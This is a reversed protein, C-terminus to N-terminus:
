NLRLMMITTYEQATSGEWMMVRAVYVMMLDICQKKHINLSWTSAFLNFLCEVFVVFISDLKPM